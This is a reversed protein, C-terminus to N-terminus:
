NSWMEESSFLIRTKTGRANSETSVSGRIQRALINVMLLGFSEKGDPDEVASYGCGNDEITISYTDNGECRLRIDVRPAEPRRIEQPFAHKLANSVLENIILACPLARDIPLSIEDVYLVVEPTIATVSSTKKLYSALRPVYEHMQIAAFSENQYLVEHILAMTMVRDRSASLIGADYSDRIRSEQLSLMSVVVQLNNKVRHHIERLLVSKEELSASLRQEGQRRETDDHITWVRGVVDNGLQQPSSYVVFVRGDKLEVVDETGANPDDRLSVIRDRSSVGNKLRSVVYDLLSNAPGRLVEQPARWMEVFRRNYSAVHGAADVSLIGDAASDLVTSQLSLAKALALETKKLETLDRLVEIAGYRVGDKSFLPRAVGWLHAGAGGRLRAVFGEAYLMDGVKEFREYRSEAEPDSRDLLDILSPSPKGYFPVGHAYGGEGLIGEKPVGTLEEMTRNWAIVRHDRDVVFTAEPFAEILDLLREREARLAAEARERETVDRVVTIVGSVKGDEDHFLSANCQVRIPMGGANPISLLCERLTGDAWVRDLAEGALEAEVFLSSFRKGVLEGRDLGTIKEAASNVDMLRGDPDIAMFPDLSAELLNHSYAQRERATIEARRRQVIELGLAHNVRLIQFLLFALFLSILVGGYFSPSRLISPRSWGDAPLAAIQWAGDPFAVEMVVPNRGFVAPDGWFVPGPRGNPDQKRLSIQLSTHTDTLGAARLLEPFDIVVAAFGWYRENGPESHLFIPTRAVVGVGGEVLNVPGAVITKHTRMAEEVAGWQSPSKALNFGVAKENGARPYVYRVVNGPALLVSRITGDSSVLDAAVADFQGATIGEHLHVMSELGSSMYISAHLQVSLAGRLQDLNVSVRDRESQVYGQHVIDAIRISLYTGAAVLLIVTLIPVSM